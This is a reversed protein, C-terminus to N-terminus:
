IVNWFTLLDVPSPYSLGIEYRVLFLAFHVLINYKESLASQCRCGSVMHSVKCLFIGLFLLTPQIGHTEVICLDTQNPRIHLVGNTNANRLLLKQFDWGFQFLDRFGLRQDCPQTLSDLRTIGHELCGVCLVDLLPVLLTTKIEPFCGATGGWESLVINHCGQVDLIAVVDIRQLGLTGDNALVYM